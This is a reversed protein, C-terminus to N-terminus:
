NSDKKPPYNKLAQKIGKRVNEESFEPNLEMYASVHSQWVMQSAKADAMGIILSGKLYNIVEKDLDLPKIFIPSDEARHYVIAKEDKVTITFGILLDPNDNDLTLGKKALEVIIAQKIKDQLLSDKLYDPGTFKFECGAMWCYTKYNGFDVKTDFTEKVTVSCSSLLSSCLLALVVLPKM